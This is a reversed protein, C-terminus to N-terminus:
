VVSKGGLAANATRVALHAHGSGFCKEVLGALFIFAPPWYAGRTGYDLGHTVNAAYAELSPQDGYPPLIWHRVWWLRIAFSFLFVSAPYLWPRSRLWWQVLTAPRRM